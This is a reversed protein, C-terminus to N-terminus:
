NDSKRSTDKETTPKFVYGLERRAFTINYIAKFKKGM